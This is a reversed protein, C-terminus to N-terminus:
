IPRSSGHNPRPLDLEPRVRPFRAHAANGSRHGQRRVRRADPRRDRRGGTGLLKWRYLAGKVQDANIEALSNAYTNAQDWNHHELHYGFMAALVRKDKPKIKEAAQLHAMATNEDPGGATLQYLAIERELPDSIKEAESLRIKHM